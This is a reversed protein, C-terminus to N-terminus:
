ASPAAATAPDHRAHEAQRPEASTERSLRACVYVLGLVASFQIGMSLVHLNEFFNHVAVATLVGLSGVVVAHLLPDELRRLEKITHWFSTAIFAVYTVLGALGAEAAINIYYNHAHGFTFYFPNVAYQDYAAGYNGIGVGLIPHTEFMRLGAQWQAMRELVAYNADTVMVRSVDFFRMEATISQLRESLIGPLLHAAGAVVLAALAILPLLRIVLPQRGALLAMVVVAAMLGVWAGRSLSLVQATVILGVVGLLVMAVAVSRILGSREANTSEEPRHRVQTWDRHTLWVKVVVFVLLALAIPGIMGLFGAYPNPMGFTGYARSLSDEVQFSEPGAMTASQYIGLLAEMVGAAFFCGVLTLVQRKNEILNIVVLYVVAMEIWRTAADVSDSRSLAVTISALVAVLFLGLPILLPTVALRKESHALTRLLWIAFAVVVMVKTFTITMGGAHFAGYDQIPVSLVLLYLAIQPRILSVAALGVGAICLLAYTLPLFSVLAASAVGVAGLIIWLPFRGSFVAPSRAFSASARLPVRARKARIV